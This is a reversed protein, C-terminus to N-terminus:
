PPRPSSRTDGAGPGRDQRVLGVLLAQLLGCDVPKALVDDLGAARAEAWDRDVVTATLAVIPAGLGAARMERAASLGDLVPMQLDMLVLDFPTGEDRARLARDLAERGNQAQEVQLGWGELLAVTILMNVPNDEAVLVSLPRLTHDATGRPASPPAPAPPLPLELWFCSGQGPRSNVGVQGGLAKALERCISLGLGSGGRQRQSSADVQRFPEFLLPQDAPAIGCGSDHVEFRVSGAGGEAVQASLGIGGERTFKLANHLYNNLIQRLRVADAQVHQPLAPDVQLTCGLGRAGALATFARHLDNLLAHLDFPEPRLDLRGAEARSLDLVDSLTANLASASDGILDLYEVLRTRDDVHRRALQALGLIGNLPTRVEHSMNALFSSKARSAARADAAAQEAAERQLEKATIDRGVCWYGLFQGSGSWRPRGSILLRAAQAQPDPQWNVEIDFPRRALLAERHAEAQGPDLQLGPTEWPHLGIFTPPLPGAPLPLDITPHTFRLDADLELYRDAATALMERFQNERAEALARWRQALNRAVLGFVLGAILMLAHSWVGSAPTLRSWASMVNDRGVQLDHWAVLGISCVAVAVVLGARWGGALLTALGVLLPLIGLAITRLGTGLQWALTTSLAIGIVSALLVRDRLDMPASPRSFWAFVAGALACGLALGRHMALLEPQPQLLLVLTALGCLVAGGAMFM